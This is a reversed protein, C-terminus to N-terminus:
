VNLHHIKKVYGEADFKRRLGKDNMYRIKGFIAREKWPRDHKGFCWAVGTFGCPDRGDLEYINNLYLATEFAKKPNKTWELIKKGWYMRMYGHMKGTIRMENQAANWFPDHTNAEELDKLSYNYERFDGRHELLSNKVWTPLGEFSAYKDNYFVYNIALERRVILEELYVEKSDRPNDSSLVKQAIQIPSIQGFHLYPSMNSLVNSTPDNRLNAYKILKNKLFSDLLKKAKNEGGQFYKSPLVKKKFKLSSIIQKSNKINISEFKYELSSKKPKVPKIERLFFNSKIRVKPRFTAASYEEKPSADLVPIIVNDEVQFLPCKVNQTAELYSQKHEPLYGKDVVVLCANKSLNAVKAEPSTLRFVIKIGLEDLSEKVENLGELMFKFNRNNGDRFDTIGFFVVVPKDLKNGMFISFDLALNFQTRHSSQMWYLVFKREKTEISNLKKVREEYLLIVVLFSEIKIV